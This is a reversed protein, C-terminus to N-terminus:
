TFFELTIVSTNYSALNGAYYTVRHKFFKTNYRIRSHCFRIMPLSTLNTQYIKIRNILPNWVSLDVARSSVTTPKGTVIIDTRWRFVLTSFLLLCSLYASGLFAHGIAM